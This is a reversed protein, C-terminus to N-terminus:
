FLTVTKGNQSIYIIDPTNAIGLFPNVPSNFWESQVTTHKFIQEDAMCPIQAAILDVLRDHRATYLEKFSSCSNMILAVSELHQPPNHQLCLPYHSSPFWLSLNYKTPLVQLRAKVCFTLIEESITANSYITHSVSHDVCPLKTLKGQLKLNSWYEMNQARQISLLTQRSTKPQLLHVINNHHLRAEM